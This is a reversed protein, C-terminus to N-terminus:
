SRTRKFAMVALSLGLGSLVVEALASSPAVASFLEILRASGSSISLAGPSHRILALSRENWRGLCSVSGSVSSSLLDRTCTASPIKSCGSLSWFSFFGPSFGSAGGKLVNFICAVSTATPEAALWVELAAQVVLVFRLVAASTCAGEELLM